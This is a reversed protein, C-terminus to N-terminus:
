LKNIAQIIGLRATAHGGPETFEQRLVEALHATIRVKQTQGAREARLAADGGYAKLDAKVTKPKGLLEGTRTDRVQLVFTIAHVGGITYRARETLAHFRTVEVEINVPEKGGIRKSGRAFAEDFIAKVQAHRDGFPDERWVIDGGPYYANSESVKLSKPVNVAIKNIRYVPVLAKSSEDLGNPDYDPTIESFKQVSGVSQPATSCASIMAACGLACLVKMTKM